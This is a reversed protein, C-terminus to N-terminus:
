ERNSEPFEELKGYMHQKNRQNGGLFFPLRIKQSGSFVRTKLSPRVTIGVFDPHSFGSFHLFPPNGNLSGRGSVSSQVSYGWMSSGMQKHLPARWPGKALGYLRVLQHSEAALTKLTRFSFFFQHNLEHGKKDGLQLDTLRQTQTM